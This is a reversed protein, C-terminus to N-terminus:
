NPGMATKVKMENLASSTPSRQRPLTRRGERERGREAESLGPVQEAAWIARSNVLLGRTQAEQTNQNLAPM